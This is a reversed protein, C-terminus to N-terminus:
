MRLDFDHPGQPRVPEKGWHNDDPPDEDDGLPLILVGIVINAFGVVTVWVPGDAVTFIIGHVILIAGLLQNPIRGIM